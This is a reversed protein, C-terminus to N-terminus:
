LNLWATLFERQYPSESALHLAVEKAKEKVLVGIKLFCLRFTEVTMMRLRARKQVTKILIYAFVHLFLRFQNAEFEQCSTRGSALYLKLDKIWNECQARSCYKDEYIKRASM